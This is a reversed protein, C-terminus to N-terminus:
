KLKGGRKLGRGFVPKFKAINESTAPFAIYQDSISVPDKFPVTFVMHTYNLDTNPIYRSPVQGFGSQFPIPDMTKTLYKYPINLLNQDGLAYLLGHTHMGTPDIKIASEHFNPFRSSWDSSEFKPMYIYVDQGYRMIPDNVVAPSGVDMQGDRITLFDEETFPKGRMAGRRWNANMRRMFTNGNKVLEAIYSDIDSTKGSKIDAYVQSTYQPSQQVVNFLRPDTDQIFKVKDWYNRRIYEANDLQQPLSHIAQWARDTNWDNQQLEDIASASYNKRLVDFKDMMKRMLAPHIDPAKGENYRRMFDDAVEPDTLSAALKERIYPNKLGTGAKNYARVLSTTAKPAKVLGKALRFLLGAQGKKILKKKM